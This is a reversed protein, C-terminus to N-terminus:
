FLIVLGGEDVMALTRDKDSLRLFESIDRVRLSAGTMM